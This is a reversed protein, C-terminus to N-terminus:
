SWDIILFKNLPDTRINCGIFIDNLQEILYKDPNQSEHVLFHFSYKCENGKWVFIKNRSHLSYINKYDNCICLTVQSIIKHMDFTIHPEM